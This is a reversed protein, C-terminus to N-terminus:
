KQRLSAAFCSRRTPPRMSTARTLNVVMKSLKAERPAQVAGQDARQRLVLMTSATLLFKQSLRMWHQFPMRPLSDRV